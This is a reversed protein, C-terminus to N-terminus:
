TTLKKQRESGGTTVPESDDEVEDDTDGEHGCDLPETVVLLLVEPEHLLESHLALLFDKVLIILVRVIMINYLDIHQLFPHLGVNGLLSENNQGVNGGHSEIKLHASEFDTM